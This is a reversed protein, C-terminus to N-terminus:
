SRNLFDRVVQFDEWANKKLSSDNLLSIPHYTVKLPISNFERLHSRMDNLSLDKNLLSKGSVKGLAIIIKPKILEIQKLLYSNCNNIESLLPDRNNPTKCKLINTIYVNKNRSLGIAKLIKDLLKGAKGVFPKGKEDEYDGPAEGIILLDANKDGSGFVFNKRSKGLECKMCCEVLSEFEELASNKLLADKINLNPAFEFFLENGYLEIHQKIFRNKNIVSM